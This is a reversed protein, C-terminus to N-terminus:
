GDLAKKEPEVPARGVAQQEPGARGQLFLASITGVLFWGVSGILLVQWPGPPADGLALLLVGGGLAGAVVLHVRVVVSPLFVERLFREGYWLRVTRRAVIALVAGGIPVASAVVPAPLPDGDAGPVALLAAGGALACGWLLAALGARTRGAHGGGGYREENVARIEAIREPWTLGARSPVVILLLLLVPLLVHSLLMLEDVTDPWAGVTPLVAPGALPALFVVFWWPSRRGPMRMAGRGGLERTRKLERRAERGGGAIRNAAVGQARHAQAEEPALEVATRAAAVSEGWWRLQYAADSVALYGRWDDPALEVARRALPLAAQPDRLEGLVSAALSLERASEPEAREVLARSERFKRAMALERARLLLEM